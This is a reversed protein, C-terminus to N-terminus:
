MRSRDCAIKKSINNYGEQLERLRSEAAKKALTKSKTKASERIERGAFWFRYGLFGKKGRAEIKIEV